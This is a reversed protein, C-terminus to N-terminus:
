RPMLSVHDFLVICSVKRSSSFPQCFTVIDFSKSATKAQSNTARPVRSLMSNVCRSAITCYALSASDGLHCELFSKWQRVLCVCTFSKRAIACFLLSITFTILYKFFLFIRSFLQERKQISVSAWRSSGRNRTCLIHEALVGFSFSKFLM